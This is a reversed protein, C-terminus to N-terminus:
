PHAAEVLDTSMELFPQRGLWQSFWRCARDQEVAADDDSDNRVSDDASKKVVIEPAAGAGASRDLHVDCARNRQWGIM